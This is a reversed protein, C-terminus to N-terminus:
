NYQFITIFISIKLYYIQFHVLLFNVIPVPLNLFWHSSLQISGLADHFCYLYATLLFIFLLKRWLITSSDLSGIQSEVTDRAGTTGSCLWIILKWHRSGKLTSKPNQKKFVLQALKTLVTSKLNEISKM